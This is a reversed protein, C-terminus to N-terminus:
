VVEQNPHLNYVSLLMFFPIIIKVGGSQYNDPLAELAVTRVGELIPPDEISVIKWVTREVPKSVLKGWLDPIESDDRLTIM